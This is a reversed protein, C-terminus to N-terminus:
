LIMLVYYILTIIIAETRFTLRKRKEGFDGKYDDRCIEGVGAM